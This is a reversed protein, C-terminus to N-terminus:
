IRIRCGLCAMKLIEAFITNLTQMKIPKYV